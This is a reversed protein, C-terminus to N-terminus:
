FKMARQSGLNSSPLFYSFHPFINSLTLTLLFSLSFLSVSLFIGFLIICSKSIPHASGLIQLFIYSLTMVFFPLNFVLFIYTLSLSCLYIHRPISLCSHNKLSLNSHLLVLCIFNFSSLPYISSSVCCCFRIWFCFLIRLLSQSNSVLSGSHFDIHVFYSWLYINWLMYQFNHVQLRISWRAILLLLYNSLRGYNKM